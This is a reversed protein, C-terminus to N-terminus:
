TTPSRDSKQNQIRKQFPMGEETDTLIGMATTTITIDV